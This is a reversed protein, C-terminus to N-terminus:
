FVLPLRDLIHTGARQTDIIMLMMMMTMVMTMVMTM